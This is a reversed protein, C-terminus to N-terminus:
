ISCQRITLGIVADVKGSLLFADRLAVDVRTIKLSAMDINNLAMLALFIKSGADSAGSGLNVHKLDQVTTVPNRKLSIICAPFRDFIPLIIKPTVGPNSGAFAVLTSADAVGFQYAGTAVQRVADGSGSSGVPTIDLLKKAVWVAAEIGRKSSSAILANAAALLTGGLLQIPRGALKTLRGALGPNELEL